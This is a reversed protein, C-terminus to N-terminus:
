WRDRGRAPRRRRDRRRALGGGRGAPRGPGLRHQRRDDDVVGALHIGRHRDWRGPQSQTVQNRVTIQPAVSLGALAAFVFMEAVGTAAILPLCTLAMLAGLLILSRRPPGFLGPRAGYLLRRRRLRLRAGRCRAAWRPPATTPASPPCPSTSRASPGRWRCAPSSWCACPRRPSRASGTASPTPTTAPRCPRRAPRLRDLRAPRPRRRRHRGRRRRRDGGPRGGPAARHRLRDRDDGRRARLRDAAPAPRGPGALTSAPHRRDPHSAAGALFGAAVLPATGAGAEGLGVVAFLGIAVLSAGPVIFLRSGRRDILRAMM